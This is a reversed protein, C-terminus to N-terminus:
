GKRKPKPAGANPPPPLDSVPCAEVCEVLERVLYVVRRASVQRPKPFKGQRGLKELTSVVLGVFSAAQERTLAIPPIPMTVDSM